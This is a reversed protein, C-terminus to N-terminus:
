ANNTFHVTKLIPMKFFLYIQNQTIHNSWLKVSITMNPLELFGLKQPTKTKRFERISPYKNAIFLM